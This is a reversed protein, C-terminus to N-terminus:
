PRSPMGTDYGLDGILDSLAAGDLAGDFYAVAGKLLEAARAVGSAFLESLGEDRERSPDSPDRWARRAKNELDGRSPFRPTMHSTALGPKKIARELAWVAAYKIGRPSRSLRNARESDSLATLITQVGVPTEPYTDSIAGSWLSAVAHWYPRSASVGPMLLPTGKFGDRRYYLSDWSKELSLHLISSYRGEADVSHAYVYPHVMSDLAYHTLFGLCFAREVPGEERARQCLARLFAGTRRGHLMHGYPLPKSSPRLPFMGLLFLPDPGQAGLIYVDGQVPTVGSLRSAQEACCQHLYGSPM